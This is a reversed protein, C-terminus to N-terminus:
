PLTVVFAFLLLIGPRRFTLLLAIAVPKSSQVIAM